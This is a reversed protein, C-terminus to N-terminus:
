KQSGDGYGLAKAQDCFPMARCYNECRRSGGPRHEVEFGAASAAFENALELDQFVRSARKAGRKKVAYTDPVAWREEPTCPEYTFDMLAAQHAAVREVLFVDAEIEPWCPVNITISFSQPYEDDFQAKRDQWDLFFAIIQSREVKMGNRRLIAAYLNLQQEWEVKPGLLYAYTLMTKYDKLTGDPLWVDPKGTVTWGLIETSFRQEKISGEPLQAAELIQHVLRGRFTYYADNVDQVMESAHKRMLYVMQPPSVLETVSIDGERRYPDNTVAQVVADDINHINTFSPM